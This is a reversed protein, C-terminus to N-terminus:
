ILISWMNIIQMIDLKQQSVNTYVLFKDYSQPKSRIDIYVYCFTYFMNLRLVSHNCTMADSNNGPLSIHWSFKYAFTLNCLKIVSVKLKEM